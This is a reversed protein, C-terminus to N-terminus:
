CIPTITATPPIPPAPPPTASSGTDGGGAPPPSPQTQAGTALLKQGGNGAKPSPTGVKFDASNDNTDGGDNIRQISTPNDTVAAGTGEFLSSGGWGVLDITAGTNNLLKTSAGDKGIDLNSEIDCTPAAATSEPKLKGCIVFYAGSEITGSLAVPSGNSTNGKKSFGQIQWGTLSVAQATPNYLEVFDRNHTAGKNGGGGYVENIVIHDAPTTTAAQASQLGATVLGVSAVAVATFAAAIKGFIKKM